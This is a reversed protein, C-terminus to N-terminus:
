GVPRHTELPGLGVGLPRVRGAGSPRLWLIENTKLVEYRELGVWHQVRLGFYIGGFCPTTDALIGGHLRRLFWLIKRRSRQDGELGCLRLLIIRRLADGQQPPLTGAHVPKGMGRLVLLSRFRVWFPAM